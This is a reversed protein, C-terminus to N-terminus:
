WVVQQRAFSFRLIRMVLERHSIGAQLASAAFGSKPGINCCVNLELFVPMGDEPVRVDVRLYDIPQLARYLKLGLANVAKLIADDQVLRRRLSPDLRRKQAYTILGGFHPSIAEYAPLCRPPNGGLIPLSVNAGPVFTEVLVEEGSEKWLREIPEGLASWTEQLCDEALLRSSAGSRPKVFYPGPFPPPAHLEDLSRVVTWDATRIALSRAVHKAIHKDDAVARVHPGAGLYPVHRYECLSTVFVESGRYPARNLLSFVYDFRENKLLAAPTRESIVDFGFETLLALMSAHYAPYIGEASDPRSESETPAYNALYLVKLPM